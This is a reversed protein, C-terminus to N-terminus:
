ESARRHSRIWSTNSIPVRFLSQKEWCSLRQEGHSSAMDDTLVKIERGLDVFHRVIEVHRFCFRWTVWKRCIKKTTWKSEAACWWTGGHQTWRCGESPLKAETKYLSCFLTYM